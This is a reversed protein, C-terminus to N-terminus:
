LFSDDKQKPATALQRVEKKINDGQSLQAVIQKEIDKRFEILLKTLPILLNSFTHWWCCKPDFIMTEIPHYMCRCIIQLM